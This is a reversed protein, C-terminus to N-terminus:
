TFSQTIRGLQGIDVTITDGAAVPVAATLGGAFIVQGCRLGAEGDAHLRRALWAVAAAPHGMVAAGAATAIVDGNKSLVAGLLDLELGQPLQPPGVLYRGASVNDAALDAATFRYDEYRSDIIEIGAAVAATATLVDATTIHPGALDDGLVFVIEPEARPAILTDIPLPQGLNLGDAADLFGYLPTDVGVQRQKVHATLGLKWGALPRGQRRHHQVRYGLELEFSPDTDSFPAIASRERRATDLRAAIGSITM